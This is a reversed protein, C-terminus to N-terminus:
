SLKKVAFQYNSFIVELKESYAHVFFNIALKPKQTDRLPPNPEERPAPWQYDDFLMIGGVNLLDWSMCADTLVESATHGGDVYIFDFRAKETILQALANYSTNKYPKCIQNKGVSLGTNHKWRAELSSLHEPQHEPSGEFTDVCIITGDPQLFNKLIWCTSRGEFSGIELVNKRVSLKSKINEFNPIRPSFWDPFLFKEKPQM